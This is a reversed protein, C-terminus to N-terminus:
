EFHVTTSLSIDGAQVTVVKEEATSSSLFFSVRGSSSTSLLNGSGWRNGSGSARALVPLDVVPNRNADVLTLRIEIEDSGGARAVAPTATIRSPVEAPPGPSAVVDVEVSTGGPLRAAITKRGSITSTLRARLVGLAGTETGEVKLENGSGAASLNIGIGELGNGSGDRVTVTIESSHVGDAVLPTAVVTSTLPSPDGGRVTLIEGLAGECCSAWAYLRYGVSSEELRVDQFRAIGAESGVELSGRLTAGTPNAHLGLRVPFDDVELITGGSDTLAVAVTFREGAVVDTPMELIELRSPRGQTISFPESTAPALGEASAVLRHESGEVSIRLDDFVAVGAGADVAQLAEEELSLEITGEWSLALNGYEDQAAVTPAPTLPSGAMGAGPQAIFALHSAPGPDLTITPIQGPGELAVGSVVARVTRKGAVTGRLTAVGMGTSSTEGLGLEIQDTPESSFVEFSAGAVGRGKADRAQILVAVQDAGDARIGQTRDTYVLSRAPTVRPEDAEGGCAAALVAVAFLLLAATGAEGKSGAKGKPGVTSSAGIASNAAAWLLRGGRSPAAGRPGRESSRRRLLSRGSGLWPALLVAGLGWLGARGSAAQCGGEGSGAPAEVKTAAGEPERRLELSLPAIGRRGEDDVVQVLLPHDMRGAGGLAEAPATGELTGASSFTLGEPLRSGGLLRWALLGRGGEAQLRVSYPSGIVAPPLSRTAVSLAGQGMVQVEVSCSAREQDKDSVEVTWVFSGISSAEGSVRGAGGLHLGPPPGGGLSVAEDGIGRSLRRTELSRWGYPARGGYAALSLQPSEGLQLKLKEGGLCRLEGPWGAEIRVLREEAAGAGDEVSVTLAFEGQETPLGSIRGDSGLLLGSPLAGSEFRWRYPARGGAARLGADYAQGLIAPPLTSTVIALPLQAPLVEIELSREGRAGGSEVGLVFSYLGLASPSGCLLGTPQSRLQLGPALSGELLAWNYTGTGGGAEIAVCYPAGLEAAPLTATLIEVSAGRVAILSSSRANDTEDTEPILDEPDLTLRLRFSGMPLDAPLAAKIPLTRREGKALDISGAALHVGAAGLPFAPSLELAWAAGAGDATGENTVTAVVQVTEGPRAAEPVELDAVGLNPRPAGLAFPASVGINNSVDGEPLLREPDLEVLLYWSGEQLNEPIVLRHDLLAEEGRRLIERFGAGFGLDISRTTIAPTRDLWYRVSFAGVEGGGVNEITTLVRTEVGAFLAGALDIRQVAVDPLPFFRIVSDRPWHRVGCDPTCTLGPTGVAVGGRTSAMVGVSASSATGGDREGYRLEIHDDEEYLAIQFAIPMEQERQRKCGSGWQITFRRNPASGATQTRIGGRTCRLDEWWGAILRNPFLETPIPHNQASRACSPHEDFCFPNEGGFTIYGNTSVAIETYTEGHFRFAFPLIVEAAGDGEQNTVLPESLSDAVQIYKQPMREVRYLSTASASGAWPALALFVALRRLWVVLRRRPASWRSAMTEVRCM